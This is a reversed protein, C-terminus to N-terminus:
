IWDLTDLATPKCLKAIRRRTEHLTWARACLSDRGVTVRLTSPHYLTPWRYAGRHRIVTRGSPTTWYYSRGRYTPPESGDILRVPVHLPANAALRAARRFRPVDTIDM